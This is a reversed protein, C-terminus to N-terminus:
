QRLDAAASGGRGGHELDTRDRGGCRGAGVGGGGRRGRGPPRSWAAGFTRSAPTDLINLKHDATKVPIVSLQVSATRKIEEPEYDSVTTGEDTSGARSTQGAAFLMAEAIMTKGAGGHSVLAVNRLKDAGFEAM